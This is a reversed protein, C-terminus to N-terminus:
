WLNMLEEGTRLQNTFGLGKAKGLIWPGKKALLLRYIERAPFFKQKINNLCVSTTHGRCVCTMQM